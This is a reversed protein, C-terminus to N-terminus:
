YYLIKGIRIRCEMFPCRKFLVKLLEFEQENNPDLDDIWNNYFEETRPGLLEFYIEYKLLPPSFIDDNEQNNFM